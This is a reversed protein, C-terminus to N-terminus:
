DSTVLCSVYFGLKFVSLTIMVRNKLRDFINNYHICVLLREYVCLSNIVFCVFTFIKLITKWQVLYKDNKLKFNELEWVPLRLKLLSNHSRQYFPFSPSQLLLLFSEKLSFIWFLVGDHPFMSIVNEEHGRTGPGRLNIPAIESNFSQTVNSM